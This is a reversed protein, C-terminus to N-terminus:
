IGSSGVYALLSTRVNCSPYTARCAEKSLTRSGLLAAMKYLNLASNVDQPYRNLFFQFVRVGYEGFRKPEAAIECVLLSICFYKDNKRIYELCQEEWEQQVQASRISRTLIKRSNTNESKNNEFPPINVSPTSNASSKASIRSGYPSQIPRGPINWPQYYGPTLELFQPNLSGSKNKELLPYQQGAPPNRYIPQPVLPRIYNSNNIHSGYQLNNNLTSEKTVLGLLKAAIALNLGIFGVIGTAAIGGILEFPATLLNLIAHTHEFVITFILIFFVSKMLHM